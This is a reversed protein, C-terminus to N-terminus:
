KITRFYKACSKKVAKEIDNHLRQYAKMLRKGYPTLRTDGGKEGGRHKEILRVNLAKQMKALDGWAKRYSIDLDRCASALSGTKEITNLLRWKGDGLANIGDKTNIWLRFKATLKKMITNLLFYLAVSKGQSIILFM